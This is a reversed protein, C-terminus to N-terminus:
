IDRSTIGRILEYLDLASDTTMSKSSHSGANGLLKIASFLNQIHDYKKPLLKIRKHLNLHCRKGNNTIYRKIKLNTLLHELSIRVHNAASDPDAFFLSFSKNVEEVIEEPTEKPLQLLKLHPTFYQPIFYEDYSIVPNGEHDYEYYELKVLGKGTSSVVDKCGADSCELLCSYIYIIWDPAWAEHSHAQKSLKTEEYHFKDQVVQLRGKGCTPCPFNTIGTKRFPLKYIKRDM